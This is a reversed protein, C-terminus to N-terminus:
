MNMTYQGVFTNIPNAGFYKCHLHHPYQLVSFQLLHPFGLCKCNVDRGYILQLDRQKKETIETIKPTQIAFSHDTTCHVWFRSFSPVETKIINVTAIACNNRQTCGTFIACLNHTLVGVKQQAAM